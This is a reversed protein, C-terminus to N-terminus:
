CFKDLKLKVVYPYLIFFIIEFFLFNELFSGWDSFKLDWLHVCMIVITCPLLLLISLFSYVNVKLYKKVNEIFIPPVCTSINPIWISSDRWSINESDAIEQLQDINGVISVQNSSHLSNDFSVKPKPEQSQYAFLTSPQSDDKWALKPPSPTKDQNIQGSINPIPINPPRINHKPAVDLSLRYKTNSIYIIIAAIISLCVINPIAYFYLTETNFFFNKVIKEPNSVNQFGLYMYLSGVLIVEFIKIIIIISISVSNTIWEHYYADLYVFLFGDLDQAIVDLSFCFTSLNEFMVALQLGRGTFLIFIDHIFYIFIITVIDVLANLTLLHVPQIHDAHKKLLIVLFTLYYLFLFLDM